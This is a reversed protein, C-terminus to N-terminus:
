QKGMEAAHEVARDPSPSDDRLIVDIRHLTGTFRFPSEYSTAVPSANDCGVNLGNFPMWGRLMHPIDVSGIVDGDVALQGRASTRDVKDLTWTITHDGPTLPATGRVEHRELPFHYHFCAVGGEVFMAYGGWRDGDAVVVGECGLAPVSVHATITHSTNRLMPAADSPVRELGPWLTWERRVPRRPRTGGGAREDVPLVSYAEAEQWWREVLSSLVDPHTDALDHLEAFDEDLHYLEWRDEDLRQRPNHVTVAKWGDAVIGRHGLMEFYQV